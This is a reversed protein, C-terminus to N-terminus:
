GGGGWARASRIQLVEARARADDLDDGLRKLQADKIALVQLVERSRADSWAADGGGGGGSAM